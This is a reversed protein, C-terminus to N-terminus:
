QRNIMSAVVFHHNGKALFPSGSGTSSPKGSRSTAGPRYAVQQDLHVNPL